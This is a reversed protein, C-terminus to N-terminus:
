RYGSSTLPPTRTGTPPPRDGYPINRDSAEGPSIRLPSTTGTLLEYATARSNWEDDLEGTRNSTLNQQIVFAADEVGRENWDLRSSSWGAKNRVQLYRERTPEDVNSEIWAHALEHVPVFPLDSCITVRWPQQAPDFMGRHGQCAREDDDFVIRLSPLDLGAAAFRDLAEGVIADHATSAAIVEHTPPRGSESTARPEVPRPRPSPGPPGISRGAPFRPDDADIETIAHRPTLSLLVAAAVLLRIGTGHTHPVDTVQQRADSRRAPGDDVYCAPFADFRVLM